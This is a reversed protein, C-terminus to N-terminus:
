RPSSARPRFAAEVAEPTAIRRPQNLIARVAQVEDPTLAEDGAEELAEIVDLMAAAAANQRDEPLAKLRAIAEDLLTSM